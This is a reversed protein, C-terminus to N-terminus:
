LIYNGLGFQNLSNQIYMTEYYECLYVYISAMAHKCISDYNSIKNWKNVEIKIDGLCTENTKTKTRKRKIYKLMDKYLM